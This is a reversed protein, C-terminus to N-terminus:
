PQDPPVLGGDTARHQGGQSGRRASCEITQDPCPAPMAWARVSARVHAYVWAGHRGSHVSASATSATGFLLAAVLAMAIKTYM